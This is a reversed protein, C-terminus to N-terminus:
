WGDFLRQSSILDHLPFFLLHADIQTLDPIARHAQRQQKWHAQLSHALSRSCLLRCVAHLAAEGDDPRHSIPRDNEREWRRNRAAQNRLLQWPRGANHCHGEPTDASVPVDQRKGARNYELSCGAM